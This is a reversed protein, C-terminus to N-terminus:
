MWYIKKQKFLFKEMFAMFTKLYKLAMEAYREDECEIIDIADPLADLGIHLLYNDGEFELVSIIRPNSETEKWNM